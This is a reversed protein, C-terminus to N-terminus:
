NACTRTNRIAFLAGEEEEEKERNEGRESHSVALVVGYFGM